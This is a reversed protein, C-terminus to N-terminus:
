AMVLMSVYTGVFDMQVFHQIAITTNGLLSKSKNNKTSHYWIYMMIKRYHTTSERVTVLGLETSIVYSTCLSEISIVFVIRLYYTFIYGVELLCVNNKTQFSTLVVLLLRSFISSQYETLLILMITNIHIILFLFLTYIM